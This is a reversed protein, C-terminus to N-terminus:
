ASANRRLPASTTTVSRASSSSDHDGVVRERDLWPMDALGAEVETQESLGLRQESQRVPVDAHAAVEVLAFGVAQGAGVEAREVLGSRQGVGLGPVAVGLVALGDDVDGVALDHAQQDVVFREVDPVAFQEFVLPNDVHPGARQVAARLPARGGALLYPQRGRAQHRQGLAAHGGDLVHDGREVLEDAHCHLGLEDGILVLRRHRGVRPHRRRQLARQLGHMVLVMLATRQEHMPGPRASQHHGGRHVMLDLDGSADLDCAVSALVPAAGRDDAPQSGPLLQADDLVQRVPPRAQAGTGGQAVLGGPRDGACAVAPPHTQQLRLAGVQVLEPVAGVDLDLAVGVNLLRDPEPEEM